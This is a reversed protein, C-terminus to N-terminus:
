QLSYALTGQIEVMHIAGAVRAVFKLVLKRSAKDADAIEVANPVTIVYGPVLKGTSDLEDPAIVSQDKGAELSARLTAEHLAIGPNTYPVKDRNIMMQVQDTQIRNALWDRGVIIDIWEGGVVKGKNTLVIGEAYPEFTNANKAWAAQQQTTSIRTSTVGSLRKLAWTASGPDKTLMLGVWAADKYETLYTPDYVLVTRLYNKEKLYYAIDTTSSADVIGAAGSATVFIHPQETAGQTETWAAAGKVVDEVRSSCILAYWGADIQEIATLDDKIGQETAVTTYTRVHMPGTITPATLAQGSKPTLTLDGGSAAATVPMGSEGNIATALATMMAATAVQGTVSTTTTGYAIGFTDGAVVVHDANVNLVIASVATRGVKVMAPRPTQSFIGEGALIVEPSLANDQRMADMDTYTRVRETFLAPGVILPIGFVARPVAATQLAIQVLAIQSLNAM